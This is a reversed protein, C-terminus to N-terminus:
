AGLILTVTFASNAVTSRMAPRSPSSYSMSIKSIWWLCLTSAGEPVATPRPRAAAAPRPVSRSPTACHLRSPWVPARRAPQDDERDSRQAETPTPGYRGQILGELRGIATAMARFQDHMDRFQDNMERFQDDMRTELREVRDELRDIRGEVREFRTDVQTAMQEFRADIQEFRGDMITLTVGLVTAGVMLLTTITTIFQHKMRRASDPDNGPQLAM